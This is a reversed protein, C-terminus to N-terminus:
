LARQRAVLALKRLKCPYSYNLNAGCGAKAQGEM